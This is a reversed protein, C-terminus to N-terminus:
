KRLKKKLQPLEAPPPIFLTSRTSSYYYYYYYYYYCCCCCCYYYYYYLYYHYFYYCYYDRVAPYASGNLGELPCVGHPSPLQLARSGVSVAITCHDRVGSM